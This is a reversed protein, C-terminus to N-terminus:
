KIFECEKVEFGPIGHAKAIEYRLGKLHKCLEKGKM